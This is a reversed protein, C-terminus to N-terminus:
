TGSVTIDKHVGTSLTIRRKSPIEKGKQEGKEKILSILYHIKTEKPSQRQRITEHFSCRM